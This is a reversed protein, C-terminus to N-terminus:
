GGSPPEYQLLPMYYRKSGARWWNGSDTAMDTFEYDYALVRLYKPPAEVFPDNDLLDIVEPSREFLRECFRHLWRPPNRQNLAAFWMQWDLRPMHFPIFRPRQEFPGPKYKFEYPQWNIGDISGEIVIEPRTTTMVAFLGYNNILSFPMIQANIWAVPTPAPIRLGASALLQIGGITIALSSYVCLLVTRFRSVSTGSAAHKVIENAHEGAESEPKRAFRRQCRVKVWEIARDDLLSLCLVITLLNFFGYNGTLLIIWQLGVLPFFSFLRLRRPAFILLPVLLEIVFMGITSAKLLFEPLQHAFWGIWTPLPQTEFHFNLATLERWTPDGSSFKVFGSEMMLRFLLWRVLLVRLFFRGPSSTVAPRRWPSVLIAIFGTELLLADWQFSLFDQGLRALSLYLVWSVFLSLTPFVGAVALASGMIGVIAFLSLATDGAALWGLTPFKIYRSIGVNNQDFFQDANAILQKAPLVGQEGILGHVQVWLSFFAILFIFGVARGFLDNTRQYRLPAPNTGWLMRNLWSFKVRNRAVFRYGFESAPRFGPIHEYVWLLWFLWRTHTLSLFVAKAAHHVTGDADVYQVSEECDADSIEPFRERRQPDQYPLYEVKGRTWAEWRTIWFKCFGCDGDWIMVPREPLHAVRRTTTKSDTLAASNATASAM